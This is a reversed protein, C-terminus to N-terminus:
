GERSVRFWRVCLIVIGKVVLVMSAGGIFALGYPVAQRIWPADPPNYQLYMGGLLYFGFLFAALLLSVSVRWADTASRRVGSPVEALFVFLVGAWFIFYFAGRGASSIPFWGFVLDSGMGLLPSLSLIGPLSSFFTWVDKLRQLDM